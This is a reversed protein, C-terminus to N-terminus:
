VKKVIKIDGEKLRKIDDGKDEPRIEIIEGNDVLIKHYLDHLNRIITLIQRKGDETKLRKPNFNSFSSLTYSSLRQYRDLFNDDHIKDKNSEKNSKEEYERDLKTKLDTDGKKEIDEQQKLRTDINMEKDKDYLKQVAQKREEIIKTEKLIQKRAEPTKFGKLDKADKISINGKELEEKIDQPSEKYTKLVEIFTRDLIKVPNNSSRVTKDTLELAKVIVEKKTGTDIENKIERSINEMEKQTLENDQGKKLLIERIDPQGKLSKTREIDSSTAMQVIPSKNKEKIEGAMIATSILSENMCIMKAFNKKYKFRGNKIGIKWASYIQADRINTDIDKRQANEKIGFIIADLDTTDNDTYIKAFIEDDKSALLRRGGALLEYKGNRIRVDIENILGINEISDSLNKIDDNEKDEIPRVYFGPVIIDNKKIKKIEKMEM